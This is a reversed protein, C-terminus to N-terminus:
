DKSSGRAGSRRKQVEGKEEGLGIGEEDNAIDYLDTDLSNNSLKIRNLSGLLLEM